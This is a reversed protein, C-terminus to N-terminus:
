PHKGPWDPVDPMTKTWRRADPPEVYEFMRGREDDVYAAFIEGMEEQTEIWDAAEQLTDFTETYRGLHRGYTVTVTM